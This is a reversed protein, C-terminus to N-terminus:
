RRVTPLWTKWPGVQGTTDVGICNGLRDCLRFVASAPLPAPVVCTMQLQNLRAGALDSAQNKLGLYWSSGYSVTTSLTNGVCAAPLTVANIDLSFDVADVRYTYM